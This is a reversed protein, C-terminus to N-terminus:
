GHPFLLFFGKGPCGLRQLQYARTEAAGLTDVCGGGRLFGYACYCLGLCALALRPSHEM